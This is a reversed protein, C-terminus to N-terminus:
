TSPLSLELCGRGARTKCARQRDQHHDVAQESPMLGFYAMLQRPSDFRSIDGLEALVTM